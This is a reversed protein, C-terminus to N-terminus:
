FLTIIGAGAVIVLCGVAVRWDIRESDRLFILSLVLSFLPNTGILAAVVSVDGHSLASFMALWGASLVIGSVAFFAGSNRTLRFSGTQRAALMYVAYSLLSASSGVLAGLTASPLLNLGIKRFVGSAGYSAASLIPILLASTRLDSSGAGELRTVAVGGMVFIVGLLTTPAVNEGIFLAAFFTSFLPSSGIITASVSVGLRDISTYNLLRGLTSTMFGSAVFFAVGTLNMAAPPGSAVLTSLVAVQVMSAVVAGTLPNSDRM